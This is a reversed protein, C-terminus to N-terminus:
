SRQAAAAPFHGLDEAEPGLFLSGVVDLPPRPTDSFTAICWTGDPNFIVYASYEETYNGSGPTSSRVTLKDGPDRQLLSQMNVWLAAPTTHRQSAALPNLDHIYNAGPPVFAGAIIARGKEIREAETQPM